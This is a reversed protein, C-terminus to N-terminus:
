GKNTANTEHKAQTDKVGTKVRDQIKSQKSYHKKFGEGAWADAETNWGRRPM